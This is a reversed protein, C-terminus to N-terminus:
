NLDVADEVSALVESDDYQEEEAQFEELKKEVEDCVANVGNHPPAFSRGGGRGRGSSAGGRPSQNFSGWGRARFYEKTFRAFDEPSENLTRGAANKSGIKAQCSEM